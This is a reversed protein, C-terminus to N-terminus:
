GIKGAANVLKLKYAKTRVIPLVLKKILMYLLITDVNRKHELSSM